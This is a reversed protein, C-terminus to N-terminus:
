PKRIRYTEGDNYSTPPAEYDLGTAANAARGADIEWDEQGYNPYREAAELYAEYWVEEWREVLGPDVDQNTYPRELWSDLSM